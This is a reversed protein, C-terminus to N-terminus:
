VGKELIVKDKYSFIIKLNKNNKLNRKYDKDYLILESLPEVILSEILDKVPRAGLNIKLAKDVIHNIMSKEVSLEIKSANLRENILDNIEKKCIKELLNKTMPNFFIPGNGTLRARFEPSFYSNISNIAQTKNTGEALGVPKRSLEQAGANSTMILVVNRFSIEKGKSDTIKANDMAQLFINFIQPHAKEMEDLLLVTRPNETLVKTLPSGNDHGIYGPPSGILKSISHSEMFESMDIRHFHANIEKALDKALQTKGTGTPGLFLFSGIPKDKHGLGALSKEVSKSVKDIINDQGFLNSKLRKNLPSIEEKVKSQIADLSVNKHKSLAFEIDNKSVTDKNELHCMAGAYDLLDFAKDPFANDKIFEDALEVSQTISDKEYKVNHAKEYFDISNNLIELTKEKSPEKITVSVLRRDLAANEKIFKHWEDTTTAGITRLEGRALAPKIINAFDLGNNNGTGMISHIEDIFLIPIIRGQEEIKKFDKLLKSMKEEFQGRYSTGKVMDMVKLNYIVANELSKPVDKHIIKYALGEAIATKGVGAKGVLIPNNKRAKKLINIVQKIEDDRGIVPQIKNKLALENLNECLEELLSPKDAESNNYDEIFDEKKFGNKTFINLIEHLYSNDSNLETMHFFAMLFSAFSSDTPQTPQKNPAPNKNFENIMSQLEFQMSLQYLQNILTEKANNFMTQNNIVLEIGGGFIKRSYVGENNSNTNKNEYNIKNYLQEIIQQKNGNYKEILSYVEKHNKIAHHFLMALSIEESGYINYSNTKLENIIKRM